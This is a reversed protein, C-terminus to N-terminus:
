RYRNRAADRTKQLFREKEEGLMQKHRNRKSCKYKQLKRTSGESLTMKQGEKNHLCADIIKDIKLCKNDNM